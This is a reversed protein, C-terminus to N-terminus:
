WECCYLFCLPGFYMLLGLGSAVFKQHLIIALYVWVSGFLSNRPFLIM